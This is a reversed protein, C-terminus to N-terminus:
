IVLLLVIGVILIAMNIRLPLNFFPKAMMSLMLSEREDMQHIITFAQLLILLTVVLRLCFLM